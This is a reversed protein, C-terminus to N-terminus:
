RHGEPAPAKAGGEDKFPNKQWFHGLVQRDKDTLVAGKKEMRRVIRDMDKKAKAAAEIRERNHCALCKEDIVQLAPPKPAVGMVDQRSAGRALPAAVLLLVATTCLVPRTM